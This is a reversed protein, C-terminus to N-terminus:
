QFLNSYDDNFNWIIDIKGIQMQKKLLKNQYNLQNMIELQLIMIELMDLILLLIIYILVFSLMKKNMMLYKNINLIKILFYHYLIIIKLNLM